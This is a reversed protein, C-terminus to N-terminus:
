ELVDSLMDIPRDDRGKGVAEEVIRRAEADRGAAHLLLAKAVVADYAHDLAALADVARLRQEIDTTFAVTFDLEARREVDSFGEADVLGVAGCWRKRFLVEPLLRAGRIEGRGDILGREVAKFVFTGGADVVRRLEAGDRAIVAPTGERRAAELLPGMAAGLELALKEGLLVYRGRDAKAVAAATKRFTDYLAASRARTEEGRLAAAEAVHLAQMEVVLRDEDGRPVVRGARAGLATLAAGIEAEDFRARPMEPLPKEGCRAAFFVVAALAVAAAIGIGIARRGGGREDRPSKGANVLSVSM